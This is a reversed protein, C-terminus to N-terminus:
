DNPRSQEAVENAWRLFQARLQELDQRTPNLPCRVVHAYEKGNTAQMVDVLAYGTGDKLTEVKLRELGIGAKIEEPTV